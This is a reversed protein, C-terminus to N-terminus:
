TSCLVLECSFFRVGTSTDAFPNTNHIGTLKARVLMEGRIGQLFYESDRLLIYIFGRLTDYIPFWGYLQRTSPPLLLATLDLYVAGIIDNASVVDKDWVRLEAPQDQLVADNAVEFRVLEHWKPNLSRYYPTKQPPEDGFKVEVYADAQESARDMVPLDRAEEVYIKLTFPM